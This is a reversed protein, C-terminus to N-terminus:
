LSADPLGRLPPCVPSTRFSPSSSNKGDVEIDILPVPLPEEVGRLPQGELKVVPAIGTPLPESPEESIPVRIGVSRHHRLDTGSPHGKQNCLVSASVRESQLASSGRLNSLPM